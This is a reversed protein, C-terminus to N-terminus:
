RHIFAIAKEALEEYNYKRAILLRHIAKDANMTGLERVYMNKLDDLRYQILLFYTFQTYDFQLKVKDAAICLEAAVEDLKPVEAVYLFHLLQNIVEYSFEEIHIKNTQGESM